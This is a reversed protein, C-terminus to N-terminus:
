PKLIDLRQKETAAKTSAFAIQVFNINHYKKFMKILFVNSLFVNLIYACCLETAFYFENLCLSSHFELSM